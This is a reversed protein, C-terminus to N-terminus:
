PLGNAYLDQYASGVKEMTYAMVAQRGNARVQNREQLNALVTIIKQALAHFDGAMVLWGEQGDTLIARIGPIDSGIVPTGIAWSELITTPLGEIFSPLVFLDMMGLLDPVDYRAGM